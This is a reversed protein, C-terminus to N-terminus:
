ESVPPRSMAASITKKPVVIPIPQIDFNIGALTKCSMPITDKPLQGTLNVPQASFTKMIKHIQPNIEIRGDSRPTGVSDFSGVTVISAARDHFEYADYGKLRLAETLQHAKMAADALDSDLQKEGKQIAEIENQKIIVQGKFTAVQVSYKGPCDLLSHPVNKNMEIVFPELGNPTFYDKPLLPNTTIFAHAMPGKEKNPSGIMAQITRFAALSQSTGRNEKVELCQPVAYKLKKLVKQAEADDITNYDGVLVAVENIESGKRYRMKVPSGYRDVGMGKVDGFDFQKKHTYAPLKYRKRLEHVLEQAQKEAGDGSFSCAMIMWPGNEESLTYTKDDDTEVQKLSVLSTWPPAARVKVCFCVALVLGFAILRFTRKGGM